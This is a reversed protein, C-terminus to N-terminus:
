SENPYLFNILDIACFLVIINLNFKNSKIEKHFLM